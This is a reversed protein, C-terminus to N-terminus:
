NVHQARQSIAQQILSANYAKNANQEHQESVHSVATGVFSVIGSHAVLIAIGGVICVAIIRDFM